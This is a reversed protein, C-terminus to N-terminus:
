MDFTGNTNSAVMPKLHPLASYIPFPLCLAFPPTSSLLLVLHLFCTRSLRSHLAPSLFFSLTFLSVVQPPFILSLNGM